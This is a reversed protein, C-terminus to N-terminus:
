RAGRVVLLANGVTREGTTADEVAGRAITLLGNALKAGTVKVHDALQFRLEFAVDVPPLSHGDQTRPEERILRRGAQHRQLPHPQAGVPHIRLVSMFVGPVVEEIKVRSHRNRTMQLQAAPYRIQPIPM